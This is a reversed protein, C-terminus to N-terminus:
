KPQEVSAHEPCLHTGGHCEWGMRILGHNIIIDAAPPAMTECKDCKIGLYDDSTPDRKIM